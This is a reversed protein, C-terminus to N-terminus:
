EAPHCNDMKHPVACNAPNVNIEQKHASIRTTPLSLLLVFVEGRSGFMLCFGSLAFRGNCTPLAGINSCNSTLKLWFLRASM